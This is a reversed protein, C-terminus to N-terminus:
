SVGSDLSSCIMSVFCLVWLLSVFLIVDLDTGTMRGINQDEETKLYEIAMGRHNQSLSVQLLNHNVRQNQERNHVMEVPHFFDSVLFSNDAEQQPGPGAFSFEIDCVTECNREVLIVLISIDPEQVVFIQLVHVVHEPLVRSINARERIM